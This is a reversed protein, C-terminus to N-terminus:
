ETGVNRPQVTSRLHVVGPPRSLNADVVLEIQVAALAGANGADLSAATAFAGATPAGLIYTFVARNVSPATNVVNRALVIRRDSGDFGDNDTDRQWYLTKQPTSGSTDLWIKTLRLKATGTGDAVADNNYASYFVCSSAGCGPSVFSFPHPTVSPDLPQAARLESSVRELADRVTAQAANRASAVAVSRQMAVWGAVLMGGVISLIVMAVLLEILTLGAEVHHTNAGPITRLRSRM